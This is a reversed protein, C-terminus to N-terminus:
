LRSGQDTRGWWHTFRARGATSTSTWDVGQCGPLVEVRGDVRRSARGARDHSAAGNNKSKTRDDNQAIRVAGARGGTPGVRSGPRLRRRWNANIAAQAQKVTLLTPVPANAPMGREDLYTLDAMSTVPVPVAITKPVDEGSKAAVGATVAMRVFWVHGNAAFSVADLGKDKADKLVKFTSYHQTGSYTAPPTEGRDIYPKIFLDIYDDSLLADVQKGSAIMADGCFRHGPGDVAHLGLEGEHQQREEGRGRRVAM